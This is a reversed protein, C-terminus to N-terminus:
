TGSTRTQESPGRGEHPQWPERRVAWCARPCQGLDLTRVIGCLFVSLSCAQPRTRPLTSPTQFGVEPAGQGCVRQSFVPDVRAGARRGSDATEASRGGTLVRPQTEAALLASWLGRASPRTLRGPACVESTSDRRTQPLSARGISDPLKRRTGQVWGIGRGEAPKAGDQRQIFWLALVVDAADQPGAPEDQHPKERWPPEGMWAM